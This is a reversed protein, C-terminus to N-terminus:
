FPQEGPQRTVPEGTSPRWEEIDDPRPSPRGHDNWFGTAAGTALLAANLAARQHADPIAPHRAPHTM